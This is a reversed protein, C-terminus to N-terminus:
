NRPPGERVPNPEQDRNKQLFSSEQTRSQDAFWLNSQEVPTGFPIQHGGNQDAYTFHQAFIRNDYDETYSRGLTGHDFGAVGLSSNRRWVALRHTKDADLVSKASNFDVFRPTPRQEHGAHSTPTYYTPPQPQPMYGEGPKQGELVGSSAARNNEYLSKEGGDMMKRDKQERLSPLAFSDTAQSVTQPEWRRGSANNIASHYGGRPAATVMTRSKEGLEAGEGRHMSVLTAAAALIEPDESQEPM